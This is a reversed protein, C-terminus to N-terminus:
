HKYASCLFKYDFYEEEYKLLLTIKGETDHRHLWRITESIVFFLPDIIRVGGSDYYGNDILNCYYSSLTILPYKADIDIPVELKHYRNSLEEISITFDVPMSIEITGIIM